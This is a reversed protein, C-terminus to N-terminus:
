NHKSQPAFFGLQALMVYPTKRQISQEPVWRESPTWKLKMRYAIWGAICATWEQPINEQTKTYRCINKRMKYFLHKKTQFQRDNRNAIKITCRYLIYIFLRARREHFYMKFSNWFISYRILIENELKINLSIKTM